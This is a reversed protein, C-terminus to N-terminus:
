MTNSAGCISWLAVHVKFFLSFYYAFERSVLLGKLAGGLVISVISQSGLSGRWLLLWRLYRHRSSSSM